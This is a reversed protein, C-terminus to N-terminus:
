TKSRPVKKAYKEKRHKFCTKLSNALNLLLLYFGYLFSLNAFKIYMASTVTFKNIYRYHLPFSFQQLQLDNVNDLSNVICLM